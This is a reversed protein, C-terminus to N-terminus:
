GPVDYERTTTGTTPPVVYRNMTDDYPDAAAGVSTNEAANSSPSSVGVGVAVTLAVAVTADVAVTTSVAVGDGVANGDTVGDAEAVTTAGSVAVGVGDRVAVGLGLTVRVAVRCGVPVGVTGTVGAVSVGVDAGAIGTSKTL